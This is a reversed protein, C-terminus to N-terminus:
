RRAEAASVVAWPGLSNDDNFTEYLHDVIRQGLARAEDANSAMVEVAISIAYLRENDDDQESM